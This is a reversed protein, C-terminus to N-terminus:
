VEPIYKEITYGVGKINKIFDEKLSKKLRSMEARITADSVPENDWIYERLTDITIIRGINLALYKIIQLKKNTLKEIENNFYLMNEEKSYAYNKTLQIKLNKDQRIKMSTIEKQIRLGLEKLHFPKKLYDIAGKEFADSITDISTDASLFIAPTFDHKLKLSEVLELGTFNPVNIDLLLLDYSNKELEQKADLGDSFCVISYGLEKIYEEISRQLMLEDELLFIKM